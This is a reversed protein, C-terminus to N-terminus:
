IIKITPRPYRDGSRLLTRLLQGFAMFLNIASHRLFFLSSLGSKGWTLFGEHYGLAGVLRWLSIKLMIRALSLYPKSESNTRQVDLHAFLATVEHLSLLIPSELVLEKAPSQTQGATRLSKLSIKNQTHTNQKCIYTHVVQTGPAKQSKFSTLDGLALATVATLWWTLKSFQAM